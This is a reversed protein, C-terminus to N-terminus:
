IGVLVVTEAEELEVRKTGSLRAWAHELGGPSRRGDLGSGGQKKKFRDCADM